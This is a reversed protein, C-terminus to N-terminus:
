MCSPFRQKPRQYYMKKGTIFNLNTTFNGSMSMNDYLSCKIVVYFIIYAITAQIPQEGTSPYYLRIRTSSEVNGFTFYHGVWTAFCDMFHVLHTCLDSHFRLFCVFFYHRSLVRVRKRHFSNCRFYIFFSAIEFM